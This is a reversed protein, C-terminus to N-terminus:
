EGALWRMVLRTRQHDKDRAPNKKRSVEKWQRQRKMNTQLWRAVELRADGDWRRAEVEKVIATIEPVDKNARADLIERIEREIPSLAALEREREAARRANREREEIAKAEKKESAGDRKMAGYGVATKAGFGLWEFAHEFAAALLKKWRDDAALAMPEYRVLRQRDCCVHFVFGTGPPVSLFGIPVPKGSDHPSASGAHPKGLYYHSQHPTMIEVALREGTLQPIVDWFELAGRVHLKRQQLLARLPDQATAICRKLKGHAESAEDLVVNLYGEIETTSVSFGGVWEKWRAQESEDKPKPWPEFGFLCWIAPLTWVSDAFFDRHVLEEAARRVVGKVGSGPLCPLGYPNLFSFGNELPHENGLGTTFPANSQAMLRLGDRGAVARFVEQQRRSIAAISERDSEYLTAASQLASVTNDDPFCREQQNRGTRRYKVDHTTWLTKRTRSDIGWLKLYMGFRMGPTAGEFDSGLYRPVAAIPM